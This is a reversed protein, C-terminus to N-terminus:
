KLKYIRKLYEIIRKLVQSRQNWEKRFEILLEEGSLGKAILDAVIIEPNFDDRLLKDKFILDEDYASVMWSRVIEGLRPLTLQAYGYDSVDILGRESLRKRYTSFSASTTGTANQIDKIKMKGNVALVEIVERDKDSLESWIKEYAYDEMVEDFEDIVSILDANNKWCLYGLVQFAYPYGKTFSAMQEAQQVDINFVRAYDNTMAKIGLPKLDIRPARYLFTLSKENQLLRINEFLGTMLLYVPYDKAMMIQFAGAFERIERSNTVEDITILVRKNLKDVVQLMKHLIVEIDVAPSKNDITVSVGPISVDLHAEIFAKKCSPIEFLNSALANLLDREPNLRIVIWNSSEELSRAVLNMTVTKGYGRVGTIMYVQTSPIESKFTEVIVDTRSMKSVCVSPEKGFTINFPNSNNESNCIGTM